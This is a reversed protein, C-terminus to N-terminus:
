PCSLGKRGPQYADVFWSWLRRTRWRPWRWWAGAYRGGRPTGGELISRYRDKFSPLDWSGRYAEEVLSVLQDVEAATRARNRPRM